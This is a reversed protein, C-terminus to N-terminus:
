DAALKVEPPTHLRALLGERKEAADRMAREKIHGFGRIREPLSAIEVATALTAPSLTRLLEEIDAEFQAILAREARREETRGFVDLPTGRLRKLPALMRFARLMWPGFSRKQLHGTRPDRKAFAPPALHFELRETGEFQAALARKFAPDAYLRAVEYEDKYALLKHYGRAVAETLATGGSFIRGEIERVREVLARYRRAYRRNQYAVLHRERSAILEDLTKPAPRELAVGAATAARELDEAALRGWAFAAKNAEVATGNLEIAHMLSEHALPILGKQWTFGLLFLNTAIADGLLGTAIATADLLDVRDAGATEVVNRRLRAAPLRTDTDHVFDATPTEHTNLVVRTHGPRIAALTDRAAAVVLDGGLVLDANGRGVRLSEMQAESEGIRIHSWVSGGKQAMGTMDLVSVIKGEAHAAMGLLAGVTVIGTGGVGTVLISWPRDLSPRSPEPLVSVDPAAQVTKRVKGGHVTVFSPCFGDICSFDKNCSSQDIQRKTGFETELPAVSLCNSTRSCDGCAECVAANIFARKPPDVMTGRKRRRRKESACTQDYVIVTTAATERFRREVEQLTSRHHVTVGPAFADAGIDEYKEPEDTVVAVAATGEAALQRTIQPVTLQGDVHQGGTMAVADNFLLKYTINVGSAIAARIAMLGSHFYTGDGLNAFVHTEETFPAQGIWAVGEGGMQSFTETQRDMFIAMYHCGIGALARSGDIVKTSTNHPCGSCYYPKRIAATETREAAKAQTELFDRRAHMEETTVTGELRRALVLAIETAYLEAHQKILPGGAEDHKGLVRPRRALDYLIARVQDEILPAKEEVVLIEDLGDAFGRIIEPDVPWTLALKLLRIGFGSGDGLGLDALAQRLDRYSKGAAILGFKADRPNAVIRDLGNARVYAQAAPLGLTVLRREQEMPADPLRINVDPRAGEPWRWAFADLDFAVSASSDVVDAVTKFGVYRGSWRSMQWGHLGLELIDRLDAPVLVPVSAAVFAPESQHPITSSKCGHDDGAVLLVGGHRATGAFNAHKFVDGSRDVGPGKGYWFAFVGDYKAQPTLTVQQSGWVSTAALEENVGPQFRIHNAELQATAGWMQIDVSGLPSGRYGSVFGATNLGSRLDLARQLMPLRVLAQTGTLFVRAVQTDFKDDLTVASHKM